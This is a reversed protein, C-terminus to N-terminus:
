VKHLSVQINKELCYLAVKSLELNKKLTYVTKSISVNALRLKPKLFYIKM